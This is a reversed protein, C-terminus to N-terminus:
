GGGANKIESVAFGLNFKGEFEYYYSQRYKDYAIPASMEKM